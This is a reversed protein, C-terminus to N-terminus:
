GPAPATQAALPMGLPDNEPFRRMYLEAFQFLNPPEVYFGPTMPDTNVDLRQHTPLGKVVTEAYNYSGQAVSDKVIRDAVNVVENVAGITTHGVMMQLPGNVRSDVKTNTPVDFPNKICVERSGGTGDPSVLKFVPAFKQGDASAEISRLTPSRIKEGFHYIAGGPSMQFWISRGLADEYVDGSLAMMTGINGSLTEIPAYPDPKVLPTGPTTSNGPAYFSIGMGRSQLENRRAKARESAPLATQVAQLYRSSEEHDLLKLTMPTLNFYQRIRSAWRPLAGPFVQQWGGARMVSGHVDWATEGIWNGYDGLAKLDLLM